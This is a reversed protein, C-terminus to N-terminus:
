AALFFPSPEKTPSWYHGRQQVRGDDAFDRPEVGQTEYYDARNRHTSLFRGDVFGGFVLSDRYLQDTLAARYGNFEAITWYPCGALTEAKIAAVRTNMDASLLGFTAASAYLDRLQRIAESKHKLTTEIRM